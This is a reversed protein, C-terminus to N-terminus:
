ASIRSATLAAAMAAFVGAWDGTKQQRFLRMSPYWPSDERGRLWRWESDRKLAVWVPRGLAGALHAISTDCTVVLDLNEMAAAADLFAHGGVDYDASLRQIEFAPPNEWLQQEGFGSQLSILRVGPAHALPALDALAFSRAIDAEPNANGQWVCGVRLGQGGIEAAWRRVRAPEAALYPVEAPISDLRTAFARPLSSIAIQADFKVDAPEREFIRGGVLPGILRHMKAPVLFHPEAGAQSMMPLYRAFQITDGLGHDNIVLVRQPPASPGRWLPYRVGLAEAISKGDVWRAEYGEWGREFDGLMLDLCGLGSVAERCGLAVAREFAKRAEDLRDLARLALGQGCIADAYNRRQAAAKSFAALAPELDASKLLAAGLNVAAEPFKPRKRLAARAAAASEDLRWLSRLVASRTNLADADNAAFEFGRDLAALSEAFQGQRALLKALNFWAASLAPRIEVARRYFRMAIDPKGGRELIYAGLSLAEAFDPRLALAADLRKSAEADRGSDVLHRAQDYLSFAPDRLQAASLM